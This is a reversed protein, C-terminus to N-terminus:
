ICLNKVPNRFFRGREYAIFGNVMTLVPNFTYKWGHFPSWGCKTIYGDQGIFFVGEEILTCDACANEQVGTGKRIRFLTKTNVSTISLLTGLTIREEKLANFLLPLATELGPFGAPPDEKKKEEVTHPAHDTGILDITRDDIGKWLAENDKKSCLSPLVRKLGKYNEKNLFLHHPCVEVHIWPFIEKWKRLISVEDGTSVHCIYLVPISSFKKAAKEYSSLIKLLGDVSGTHVLVPRTQNFINLLAYESRVTIDGTTKSMYIKIGCVAKQIGSKRIEDVNDDTLAVYLGYNVYSKNFAIEGKEKITKKDTVPIKNNPMDFIASAGGKLAARTCTDWDEKYDYGPERVHVHPDIFSPILYLGECQIVRGNKLDHENISESIKSYVGNEIIIDRRIWSNERPILVKKLIIM